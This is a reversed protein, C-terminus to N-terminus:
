CSSAKRSLVRTEVKDHLEPIGCGGQKACTRWDIIPTTQARGVLMRITLCLEARTDPDRIAGQTRALGGGICCDVDKM